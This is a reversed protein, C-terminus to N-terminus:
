RRWALSASLIEAELREREPRLLSQRQDVAGLDRGRDRQVSEKGGLPDEASVQNAARHDTSARLPVSAAKSGRM